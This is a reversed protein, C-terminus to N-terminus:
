SIWAHGKMSFKDALESLSYVGDSLGAEAVAHPMGFIVSSDKDQSWVRGGKEKINRAGQCGDAGMGTLIIAMVPRKLNVALSNLTTDASPRYIDKETAPCIRAYLTGANEEVHMQQGGPALYACGPLLHEDQGVHHVEIKSLRDLREAFSETFGAPMHQIILVPVPFDRPFAPLLRQLASPGGTSAVIALAQFHQSDFHRVGGVSIPQPSMSVATTLESMAKGSIQVHCFIDNIKECLHKSFYKGPLIDKKHIFDVAGATLADLTAPAGQGTEMSMMLIKTPWLAMIQRVAEVGGMVPMEVDMTVVDPKLLQTMEVAQRGNQAEGVLEIDSCGAISDRLIRRFFSSDDVILLKITM